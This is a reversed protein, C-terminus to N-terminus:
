INFNLYGPCCYLIHKGITEKVLVSKSPESFPGTGAKNTAAVRFEYDYGEVIDTVKHKTGSVDEISKIWRHQTVAKFEVTYSHIAAGGDSKPPQWSLDVSTAKINSV